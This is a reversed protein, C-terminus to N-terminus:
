GRLRPLVEAGLRAITALTRHRDGTGEVMMIVHQIGSREAGARLRAVCDDPSGVPHLACLLDTYEHADRPSRPRDDVPYYGALGEALWGPMTARLEAVAEARTDAVHALVASIHEAGAPNQGAARAARAYWDLMDRKETDSAHMGLLLPLGRAAALEVTDTSTAAVVVPPRPQSAPRPVM